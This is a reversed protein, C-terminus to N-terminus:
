KGTEKKEDENMKAPMVSSKEGDFSFDLEGSEGSSREVAAPSTEVELNMGAASAEDQALLQDVMRLYMRATRNEPDLAIVEAWEKRAALKDNKAFHTAGLSIRAPVYGSRDRKVREFQTQADDLRGCDKLLQGLRTRVDAFGPSLDLAERYESIAKDYMNLEAYAQGLDAHMNSLKGRAFPEIQKGEATQATAREHVRRAEDYLGQENYTVALNLAAETYRPNLAIAKEFYDRAASVQGRDHYIVGLMNMVDAFGTETEAVKLLYPEAKEYERNAYYERGRELRMLTEKDM